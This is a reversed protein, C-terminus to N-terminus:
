DEIGGYQDSFPEAMNFRELNGNTDPFIIRLVIRKNERANVFKVRRDKIIDNYIGGAEYKVGNKINHVVCNAVEKCVDPYPVVIQIDPHDWSLDLGHTHFNMGTEIHQDEVLHSYWGFSALMEMEWIAQKRRAKEKQKDTM